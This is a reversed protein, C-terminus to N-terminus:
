EAADPLWRFHGVIPWAYLVDEERPTKDSPHHLVLPHGDLASRDSIIGLHNASPADLAWFVLDGAQWTAAPYISLEIGHRRFFTALNRIRRHDINTDPTQIGYAAVASVIDDHILQQLDIGLQRFARVVLDVGSGRELGPDGGPYSIARYAPDYIPARQVSARAGEILRDVTPATAQTEGIDSVPSTTALPVSPTPTVPATAAPEASLPLPELVRILTSQPEVPPQLQQVPVEIQQSPILDVRVSGPDTSVSYHFARRAKIVVATGPGTPDFRQVLQLASVLGSPYTRGSLEPGAQCGALELVISDPPEVTTGLSVPAGDTALELRAGGDAPALDISRLICASATLQGFVPPAGIALALLICVITRWRGPGIAERDHDLLRCIMTVYRSSVM